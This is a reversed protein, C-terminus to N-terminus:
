NVHDMRAITDIVTGMGNVQDISEILRSQSHNTNKMTPFVPFRLWLM